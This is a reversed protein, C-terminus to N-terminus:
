LRLMQGVSYVLVTIVQKLKPGFSTGEPSVKLDFSQMPLRPVAEM